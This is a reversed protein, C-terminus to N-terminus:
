KKTAPRGDWHRMELTEDAGVMEVEVAADEVIWTCVISGNKRLIGIVSTGALLVDTYAKMAEPETEGWDPVLFHAHTHWQSQAFGLLVDGDDLTEVVFTLVGDPSTHLKRIM